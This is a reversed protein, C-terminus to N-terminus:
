SARSSPAWSALGGRDRRVQMVERPVRTQRINGAMTFLVMSTYGVCLASVLLDRYTNLFLWVVSATAAACVATVVLVRRVTLGEFLYAYSKLSRTHSGQAVALNGPRAM